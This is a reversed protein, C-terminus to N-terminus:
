HPRILFRSTAVSLRPHGPCARGHRRPNQKCRLFFAGALAPPRKPIRVLRPSAPKPDNASRSPDALNFDAQCDRSTLGHLPGASQDRPRQLRNAAGAAAAVNLIVQARSKRREQARSALIATPDNWIPESIADRLDSRTLGIDALMRDDMQALMAADHRNKLAQGVKRIAATLTALVLVFSSSQPARLAGQYSTTM